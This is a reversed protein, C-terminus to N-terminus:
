ARRRLDACRSTVALVRSTNRIAACHARRSINRMSSSLASAAVGRLGGCLWTERHSRLLLLHRESTLLLWPWEGSLERPLSCVNKQAHSAASGLAERRPAASRPWCRWAAPKAGGPGLQRLHNRRPRTRVPDVPGAKGSGTPWANTWHLMGASRIATAMAVKTSAGRATKRRRLPNKSASL